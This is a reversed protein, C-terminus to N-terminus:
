SAYPYMNGKLERLSRELDRAEVTIKRVEALRELTPELKALEAIREKREQIFQKLYPIDQYSLKM